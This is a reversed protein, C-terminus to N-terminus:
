TTVSNSPLNHSGMFDQLARLCAYHETYGGANAQPSARRVHNLYGGSELEDWSPVPLTFPLDPPQYVYKEEKVTNVPANIMASFGIKVGSTFEKAKLAAQAKALQERERVIHEQKKEEELRKAHDELITKADGESAMLEQILSTKSKERLIKDREEEEQSTKKRDESMLNEIDLQRQIEEDAKSKKGFNKKIDDRHLREYAEIKKETELRNIDNTLNYVIQEVEELYDNYESMTEFDEEFKNYVRMVKRRIDIEKEVFPDEFVQVRFKSRKLVMGCEPCQASEKLFYMRVCADCLPHGCVNVMLKMQPNRYKTGKCAPCQMEYSSDYYCDTM